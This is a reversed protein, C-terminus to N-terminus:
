PNGTPQAQRLFEVTRRLGDELTVQPTWGLEDAALQNSVYNVPVDFSRGPQYSVAPEISTVATIHKLVQNLSVGQGSGINFVHHTGQYRTAKLFADAVDSIYIYDREVSGDGWIEIPQRGLTRSLFVGIAGQATDVRQRPGYPNTLRLIIARIGYQKEYVQLYKEIALKTIGYSVEPNTPHQEDIPLYVPRGYVTGGSSIFIIRGLGQQRMAELIQLSSILNTQVDYIPDDNSSKPLTTSVLHIVGDCGTLVQSVDHMSMIDGTVWEMQEDPGFSRYPPVRPREFVRLQYGAALLRDCIASGIFGGGGFVVYKM